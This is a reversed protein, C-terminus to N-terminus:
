ARDRYEWVITEEPQFDGNCVIQREGRREVTELWVWRGDVKVPHWAFWEAWRTLDIQQRADWRM